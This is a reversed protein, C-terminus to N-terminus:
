LTYGVGSWVCRIPTLCEDDECEWLELVSPNDEWESWALYAKIAQLDDEFQDYVAHDDSDSDTFGVYWKLLKM